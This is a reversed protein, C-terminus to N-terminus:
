FLLNTQRLFSSNCHYIMLSFNFWPFERTVAFSCIFTADYTDRYFTQPGKALLLPSGLDFSFAFFYEFTESSAAAFNATTDNM